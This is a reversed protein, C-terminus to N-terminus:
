GKPTEGRLKAQDKILWEPLDTGEPVKDLRKYSSYPIAPGGEFWAVHYTPENSYRDQEVDVVVGPGDHSHHTVADGKKIDSM